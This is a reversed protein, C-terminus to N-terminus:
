ATSRRRPERGPPQPPPEREPLAPIPRAVPESGVTIAEGHHSLQLAGEGHVLSYRAEAETVDVHLCHERFRLSFALRTLGDPLQPAFSLTPEEHRMGGLGVVLAIWTGALAGLHLGDRTNKEFDYLDMLAGEALYDRALRLCGVETALVAETAAALSSDRVTIREYYDFNRAKQEGTFADPCTQMALVLDPQKVVQKRYLDFYHFHLLLPYQDPRTADFNWVEHTTFGEAQPHVGLDDDFPIFVRAAAGRWAAMEEPTVGLERAKDQHRECASAAALLNKRAMLNTYVNNDALASYEDPGTVGDIRFDGRVDYHGLSRWLRATQVLVDLGVDREFRHDGTASVYRVVAYAIDANVHFAATGAPWYGSCEEGHITRWPFAAGELGLDRARGLAAPLTSHRWRLADAAAEPCTYTLVPLMFMESDWFAHGDYGTGTLGKAPIARGEARAGASLVQFLGFRAAQQLEPDGEIEVDAHTWFADLYSRQDAVLGDWGTARVAALAALVQDRLAPVTREASWGYAVFKVIRLRQGPELVDSVVIRASDATSEAAVHMRPTGSVLHDMAAAVRLDSRKTRHVLGASSGQCIHDESVLSAQDFTAGVRPDKGAAPLQENAVLESQVVVNAPGDLPEIEYVFGAIARHTFSVLRTSTVCVTRRAPSRWRAVRRLTGARFDLVRDHALLEGYRVDFPEDDVLLRFLKGNTVNVVTQSSEPMGYVREAELLPRLEYVGNLYSGPLGHPEGEDLNGRIGIHGNSLAFLSETQALIDLKLATEHLAWPEVRFSPHRIM